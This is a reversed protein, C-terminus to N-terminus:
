PQPSPPKPNLLQAMRNMGGVNGNCWWGLFLYYFCNTDGVNGNCWWGLFFLLFIIRLRQSWGSVVVKKIQTDGYKLSIDQM